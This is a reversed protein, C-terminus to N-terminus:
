YNIIRSYFKSIKDTYSSDKKRKTNKQYCTNLGQAKKIAATKDIKGNRLQQYLDDLQHYIQQASLSCFSCSHQKSTFKHEGCDYNHDNLNVKNLEALLESYKIHPKDTSFWDPNSQLTTNIVNILSDKKEQYPKQQQALSPRHKPNKCFASSKISQLFEEVAGKTAVYEPDNESWGKIEINFELIDESLIKYNINYTGKKILQKPDYKALYIPLELKTITTSSVDFGLLEMKEQPIISVISKNLEKCGFVTRNGKSGPYTKEFEIKPKNKKLVKEGQSNKFMLIAQSTTLNEVTVLIRHYNGYEELRFSINGYPLDITQGTVDGKELVINYEENAWTSTYLLFTAILLTILRKMM